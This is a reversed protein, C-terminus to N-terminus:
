VVNVFKEFYHKVIFNTLTKATNVILIADKESPEHSINHADSMGHRIVSIGSTLDKFGNELKEYGQFISGTLNEKIDLISLVDALLPEIKGNHGRPRRGNNIDNDNRIEILIQELLSRANTIAGTYDGNIIKNYCKENHQNILAYNGKESEKFICDYSVLCDEQAYIKYENLEEILEISYGDNDFYRNLYEVVEEPSDSYSSIQFFYCMIYDCIKSTGNIKEFQTKVYKELKYAQSGYLPNNIIDSENVFCEDYTCIIDELGCTEFIKDIESKKLKYTIGAFGTIINTLKEISTPSLLM